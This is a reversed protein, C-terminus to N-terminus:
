AVLRQASIYMISFGNNIISNLEKDLRKAVIEPVPDGYMKHAREWCIDRLQEDSGEIVPPYNGEPVPIVDDSVMEAIKNPNDIVFEKARDGFYDFDSLMEATTKLYLPAQNDFDDFGQGAMLIKRIIEDDKKLFHVDGTAVVPKGLKDGLEVVKRNFDKIVEPSTVHRFRNPITAGTKKDKKDPLTSERVMFQNNGLPQIELYDYYDAIKLLEEESKGDIIAKYLDGQECASGIILGERLTDLKSRLTIPKGHFDHLHAESVLKYLNKLGVLNKVLIIQHNRMKAIQKANLGSIDNNVDDVYYAEVGYIVKFDGGGKRIKKVAEAAAPYAQVVGHDTIAVAKHGWKFAQSVIDGASSVADKASMNTHCHLEVRKEGEYDDTETYKQLQAIVKPKVRFEKRYDDFEYTGNVLIFNGNAIPAVEGMRKPDVFMSCTLSNTHDSFSFTLINSEGRKTNITRVEIGFVEGWCSIERDDDTVEIMPKTDTNINRGYFVKPNDLYVLGNKPKDQRKEFNIETKPASKPKEGGSQPQQRVVPEQKPLEIEVDELQGDFTVNINKNFRSRIVNKFSKEFECECIKKYGGHKLTINVTDGSLAYDAGAFYGNLAPNKIKLEAAIDACATNCFANESYAFSVECASLRLADKLENQIKLQTEKEIYNETGLEITLSRNETDLNCKEIVRDAILNFLEQHICMGFIDSFKPKSM